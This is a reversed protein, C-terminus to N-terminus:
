VSDSCFVSELNRFLSNLRHRLDPEVGGEDVLVAALVHALKALDIVDDPAFSQGATGTTADLTFINFRFDPSGQATTSKWVVASLRGAGVIVYPKSPLHEVKVAHNPNAPM